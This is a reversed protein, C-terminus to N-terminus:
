TGLPVSGSSGGTLVRAVGCRVSTGNVNTPTCTASARAVAPSASPRRRNAWLARDNSAGPRRPSGARATRPAPPTRRPRGRWPTSASSGSSDRSHCTPPERAGARPRRPCGSGRGSGPRGARRPPSGAAPGGRGGPSGDRSRGARRLRRRSASLQVGHSGPFHRPRLVRARDLPQARRVGGDGWTLRDPQRLLGGVEEPGALRRVRGAEVDAAEVPHDEDVGLGAGGVHGAHRGVLVEDVRRQGVAQHREDDRLQARDGEAARDGAEADLGGAEAAAQRVLRDDLHVHEGAGALHDGGPGAVLQEVGEGVGVAREAVGGPQADLELRDAGVDRQAVHAEVVGPQQRLRDRHDGLAPSYAPSRTSPM